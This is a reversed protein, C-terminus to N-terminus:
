IEGSETGPNSPAALGPIVRRVLKKLGSDAADLEAEAQRLAKEL